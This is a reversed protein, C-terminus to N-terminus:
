PTNLLTAAHPSRGGSPSGQPVTVVRAPAGKAHGKSAGASRVRARRAHSHRVSRGTTGGGRGHAVPRSNGYGHGHRGAASAGSGGTGAKGRGRSGTAHVSVVPAAGAVNARLAPGSHGRRGRGDRVDASQTRDVHRNASTAGGAGVTRHHRIAAHSARTQVTGAAGTQTHRLVHALGTVGAAATAVVAVGALAKSTLATGAAKTVAGAAGASGVAAGSAGHGSATHLARSLLAAAAAPPLAPTVARLEARREPIAAAFAECGRCDRLHARVRRGRLVRRDGASIRRRVEECSMERGEALEALSQRAEFIAQKAGGVNTGLAIAIEEHSLGSLERMVLASRQREPLRGLDAMLSAWRARGAAQEEASAGILAPDAEALQEGSERVRRRLLTIAENHAIRYLWPRLPATRQDRRLASLAATFTSQLVDQADAEHRVISRCYRYLSQHYREYLATFARESGRGAQRALLEDSLRSLRLSRGPAVAPPAASTVTGM